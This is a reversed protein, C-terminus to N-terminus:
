ECRLVVMPDVRTARRAPVVSAALAVAALITAVGVFTVPDAATVGYLMGEMLRTAALTLAAGILIGLLAMRMASRLVMGLVARPSAGVAVRVGIEHTTQTVLQSMVGYVGIAALLLALAAFSGLLLRALRKQSLSWSIVDEMAATAHMTMNPNFEFVARKIEEELVGPALRSRVIWSSGNAVLPMVADPLQRFSLYMQARVRATADRDLGWHHVHRVIGVIEYETDIIALHLREGIPNTSGFATRALEEDIVAVFPSDETDQPTIFRGRMLTLGFAPRYDGAVMYFLAWPLESQETPHPRGAVWFPVESDGTMPVSGFVISSSEVGTVRRIRTDLTAYADRLADASSDPSPMGALSFTLVGRPDFGPDVQWVKWMTRVMLGAAATLVLALAIEGV